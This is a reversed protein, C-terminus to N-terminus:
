TYVDGDNYVSHLSCSDDAQYMGLSTHMIEWFVQLTGLHFGHASQVIFHQVSRM